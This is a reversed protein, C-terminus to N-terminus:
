INREVLIGYILEIMDAITVIMTLKLYQPLGTYWLYTRDHRSYYGDNDVTLIVTSWYIM